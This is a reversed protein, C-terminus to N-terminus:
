VAVKQFTIGAGQEPLIVGNIHSRIIRNETDSQEFKGVVGIEFFSVHIDKPYSVDIDMGKTLRQTRYLLYNGTLLSDSKKFKLSVKYKNKGEIRIKYSTHISNGIKRTEPAMGIVENDVFAEVLENEIKHTESIDNKVTYELEVETNGTAMIIDFNLIETYQIYMDESVQTVAIRFKMNEYYFNHKTPTYPGVISNVSDNKIAPFKKLYIIKSIQQWLKELDDRSKLHRSSMTITKLGTQLDNKTVLDCKSEQLEVRLVEKLIEQSIIKELEEKFIGAFQMSKMITGVFGSILLVSGLRHFADVTSKSFWNLSLLDHLLNSFFLLTGPILILWWLNQFLWKPNPLLRKFGKKTKEVKEM